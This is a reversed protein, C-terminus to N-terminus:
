NNNLKYPSLNWSGSGVRISEQEVFLEVSGSAKQAECISSSGGVFDFACLWLWSDPFCVFQQQVCGQKCCASVM